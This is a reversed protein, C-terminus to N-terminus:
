FIPWLTWMPVQVLLQLCVSPHVSLCLNKHETWLVHVIIPRSWHLKLAIELECMLTGNTALEVGLCNHDYKVMVPSMYYRRLMCYLPLIGDKVLFNLFFSIMSALDKLLGCKCSQCINTENFKPKCVWEEFWVSQQRFHLLSVFCFLFYAHEWDM